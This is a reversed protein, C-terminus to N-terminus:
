GVNVIDEEGDARNTKGRWGKRYLSLLKRLTHYKELPIDMMAATGDDTAREHLPGRDAEQSGLYFHLLDIFTDDPLSKIASILQEKITNGTAQSNRKM